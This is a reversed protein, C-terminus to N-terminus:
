LAAHHTEASPTASALVAVGGALRARVVALDRANYRIGDEQKYAADHEEDVVILRVNGLPAFVASRAGVV